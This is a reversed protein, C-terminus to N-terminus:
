QSVYEMIDKIEIEFKTPNHNSNSQIDQVILDSIKEAFKRKDFNRHNKDHMYNQLINSVSTSDRKERMQDENMEFSFGHDVSLAKMTSIILSDPFLDEFEKDRIIPNFKYHSQELENVCAKNEEHGDLLLIPKTDFEVVYKIFEKLRKTKGKGEINIVRIENGIKHYNLAKAVIPVAIEESKGEIFLVYPSLYIDTNDIGLHQKILRLQSVNTISVVESYINDRRVLFINNDNKVSTFLPSHTTIFFQIHDEKSIEEFKQMLTKQLLSHLHIEPEEICIIKSSLTSEAIRSIVYLLDKSGDSLTEFPTIKMRKDEKINLRNGSFSLNTFGLTKKVATTISTFQEWHNNRLTELGSFFDRPNDREKLIDLHLITRFYGRLLDAIAYELPKDEDTTKLMTWDPLWTSAEGLTLSDLTDTSEADQILEKLNTTRTSGKRDKSNIIIDFYENRNNLISLEEHITGYQNLKVLYRVRRLINKEPLEDVLHDCGLIKMLTERDPDSLDIVVEIKVEGDIDNENIEKRFINPNLENKALDHLIGLAHLVNSKGSNNPGIFINLGKLDELSTREKYTRFNELKLSTIRM